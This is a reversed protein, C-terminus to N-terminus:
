QTPDIRGGEGRVSKMWKTLEGLQLPHSVLACSFCGELWRRGVVGLNRLCCLAGRISLDAPLPPPASLHTTIAAAHTLTKAPPEPPGAPGEEDSTDSTM